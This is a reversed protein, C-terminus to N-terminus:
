LTTKGKHYYSEDVEVNSGEILICDAPIRCGPELLVIDGVVLEKWVDVSMTVGNQGRAVPIEQEKVQDELKQFQKSKAYDNLSTFMIIMIVAGIISAGEIWGQWLGDDYMGVLITLLGAFFLIRMIPDGIQDM